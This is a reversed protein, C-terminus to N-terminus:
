DWFGNCANFDGKTNVGKSALSQFKAYKAEVEDLGKELGETTKKPLKLTQLHSRLKNVEGIVNSFNGIADVQFVLRESNM